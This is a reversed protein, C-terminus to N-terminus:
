SPLNLLAPAATRPTVARGQQHFIVWVKEGGTQATVTYRVTGCGSPYGCSGQSRQRCSEEINRCREIAHTYDLGYRHAHTHTPRPLVRPVTRSDYLETTQRRKIRCQKERRRVERIYNTRPIQLAKEASSTRQTPAPVKTRSETTTSPMRGGEISAEDALPLSLCNLQQQDHIYQGLSM